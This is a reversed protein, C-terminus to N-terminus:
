SNVFVLNSYTEKAMESLQNFMNWAEPIEIYGASFPEEGYCTEVECVLFEDDPLKDSM